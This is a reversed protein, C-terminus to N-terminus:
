DIKRLLVLKKNSHSDYIINQSYYLKQLFRLCCKAVMSFVTSTSVTVRVDHSNERYYPWSPLMNEM